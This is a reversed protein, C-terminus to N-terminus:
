EIDRMMSEAVNTFEEASQHAEHFRLVTIIEGVFKRWRKAEERRGIKIAEANIEFLDKISAVGNKM